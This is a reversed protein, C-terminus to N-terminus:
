SPHIKRQIKESKTLAFDGFAMTQMQSATYLGTPPQSQLHDILASFNFSPSYGLAVAQGNAISDTNSEKQNPNAGHALIERYNSLGDADDDGTDQGFNVTMSQNSDMKLAVSVANGFYSRKRM